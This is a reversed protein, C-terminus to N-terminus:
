RGNVSVNCNLRTMGVGSKRLATIRAAIEEHSVLGNQDADYSKLEGLMGPCAALEGKNLSGDKDTDYMTIAMTAAEEPDIRPPVIRSPSSSCGVIGFGAILATFFLYTRIM